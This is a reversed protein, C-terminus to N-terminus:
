NSAHGKRPLLGVALLMQPNASQIAPTLMNNPPCWIDGPRSLSGPLNNANPAAKKNASPVMTNFGNASGGSVETAHCSQMPHAGITTNPRNKSCGSKEAKDGTPQAAM